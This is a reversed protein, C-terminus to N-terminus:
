RPFQELMRISRQLIAVRDIPTRLHKQIAAPMRIYAADYWDVRVSSQEELLETLARAAVEPGIRDIQPQMRETMTGAVFSERFFRKARGVPSASQLSDALIFGSVVIVVIGLAQLWRRQTWHKGSAFM